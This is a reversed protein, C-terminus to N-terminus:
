EKVVCGVARIFFGIAGEALFVLTRDDSKHLGMFKM